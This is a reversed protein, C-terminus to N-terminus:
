PPFKDVIRKVARRLRAARESPPDSLYVAARASGRWLPAGGHKPLILVSLKGEEYEEVMTGSGGSAVYGSDDAPGLGAGYGQQGGLDVSNVKYKVVADYTVLFDAQEENVERYGRRGLGDDVVARVQKEIFQMDVRPDVPVRHEPQTWAYSRLQSFDTRRDYNTSVQFESCAAAGLFLVAFVTSRMALPVRRRGSVGRISVSM